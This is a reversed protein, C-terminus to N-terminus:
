RKLQIAANLEEAEKDTMMHSKQFSNSEFDFLYYKKLNHKKSIM